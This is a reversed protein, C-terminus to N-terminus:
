TNKQFVSGIHQRTKRDWFSYRQYNKDIAFYRAGTTAAAEKSFEKRKERFYFENHDFNYIYKRGAWKVTKRATNIKDAAGATMSWQQIKNDAYFRHMVIKSFYEFNEDSINDSLRLTHRFLTSDLKFNFNVWWFFDYLTEVPATNQKITTEMIDLFYEWFNPVNPNHWCTHLFDLNERWPLMIKDPHQSFFKNANSSGYIQDGGEGDLITSNSLDILAPDFTSIDIQDFQKLFKHYFIPNERKSSESLVVHFNRYQSPNIHKLICVAIVTSDIGGSWMLYVQRDQDLKHCVTSGFEDAASEFTITSGPMAPIPYSTPDLKWPGHLDINSNRPLFYEIGPPRPLSRYISMYDSFLPSERLTHDFNFLLTHNLFILNNMCYTKEM